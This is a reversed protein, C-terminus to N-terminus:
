REGSEPVDADAGEGNGEVGLQVYVGSAKLVERLSQAASQVVAEMGTALAMRDGVARLTAEETVRRSAVELLRARELAVAAQEVLVEYIRLSVAPMPGPAKRYISVFGAVEEGVRLPINVYARGAFRALFQRVREPMKRDQSIDEVMWFSTVMDLPLPSKGVPFTVGVPFGAKGDRSWSGLFTASEIEGGPSFTLRGIACGDAETEAVSDSVAKVVEGMTTAASLRRSIRFLPSAAELLAAEEGFKRANDVAVAVQNAVLQLVAIDEESFAAEETSQVDLAGLVRGPGTGTGVMLPLAMESRTKPLLPNDFRVREEGVDLAIRAERQACAAGVMSVGGVQLRHGREKMLQGAEGTGSELMAYRETEDLLFLGVYYLDFGERVLEVVEHTLSELDLISAAARGVEAATALQAARLELDRTRDAVRQELTGILEQVQDAMDDFAQSLVGVEDERDVTVRQSLDGAAMETAAETLRTIPETIRRSAYVVVGSAILGGMLTMGLVTPLVVRSAAQAEAEAQEALLSVQLDPIWGYVGFVPDGQYNEYLGSGSAGGAAQRAGDTDVIQGAEGFRLRTVARLDADVLYTEGTEGLGSRELMLVSLDGLNVRGVLVAVPGSAGPEDGLVPRALMITPLNLQPDFAPPGLYSGELGERFYEATGHQSGEQLVDTSVVVQGDTADLLFLEAFSVKKELFDNLRIGLSSYAARREAEVGSALLSATNEQLSPEGALVAMDRDRERLWREIEQEKLTAVLELQGVTRTEAVQLSIVAGFLGVAALLGVLLPLFILL